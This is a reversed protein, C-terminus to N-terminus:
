NPSVLYEGPVKGLNNRLWFHFKHMGGGYFMLPCFGYIVGIQNENCIAHAKESYAGKGMGRVMWVRKIGTGVAKGEIEDYLPNVPYVENGLKDLETVLYKGFNDKKPSAGAIAVKKHDLFDQITQKM